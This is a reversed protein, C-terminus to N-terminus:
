LEYFVILKSALVIVAPSEIWTAGYTCVIPAVISDITGTTVVCMVFAVNVVFILVVLAV